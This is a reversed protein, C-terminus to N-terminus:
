SPPNSARTKNDEICTFSLLGLGVWLFGIALWQWFAFSLWLPIGMERWSTDVWGLDRQYLYLWFQTIGIALLPIAVLLVPFAYIRQRLMAQVLLGLVGFYLGLFTFVGLIEHAKYVWDSLDRILLRELGLLAGFVLGIRLAGVAFEAAAPLSPCLGKKLASVYPWLLVMALSLASAFWISGTPNHKQSALASAVTYLWDFGGPYYRAALFSGFSLVLLSSLYWWLARKQHINRCSEDHLNIFKM